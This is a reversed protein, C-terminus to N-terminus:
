VEEKWYGKECRRRNGMNGIQGGICSVPDETLFECDDCSDGDELDDSYAKDELCESDIDLNEPM